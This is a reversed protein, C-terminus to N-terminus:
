RSEIDDREPGICCVFLWCGVPEVALLGVHRLSAAGLKLWEACNVAILDRFRM